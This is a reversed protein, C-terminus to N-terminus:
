NVSTTDTEEMDDTGNVEQQVQDGANDAANEVDNGVADAADETKEQTSERCSFTSFSLVAAFLLLFLKKM